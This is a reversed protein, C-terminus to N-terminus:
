QDKKKNTIIRVEKETPKPDFESKYSFFKVAERLPYDLPIRVGNKRVVFAPTQCGNVENFRYPNIPESSEKKLLAKFARGFSKDRADSKNHMDKVSCISVGRSLLKGANSLLLCVTFSNNVVPDKDSYYFKIKDVGNEKLKEMVSPQRNLTFM